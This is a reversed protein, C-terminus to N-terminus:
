NTSRLETQSVCGRKVQPLRDFEETSHKDQLLWSMSFEHNRTFYRGLGAGQQSFLYYDKGHQNQITRLM